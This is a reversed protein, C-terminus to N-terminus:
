QFKKVNPRAKLLLPFPKNSGQMQSPYPVTSIRNLVLRFGLVKANSKPRCGFWKLKKKWEMMVPGLLHKPRTDPQSSIGPFHKASNQQQKGHIDDWIILISCVISLSLLQLSCILAFWILNFLSPPFAPSTVTSLLTECSSARSQGSTWVRFGQFMDLYKKAYYHCSVVLDQVYIPACHLLKHGISM